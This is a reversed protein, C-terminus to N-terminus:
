LPLDMQIQLGLGLVQIWSYPETGNIYPYAPLSSVWAAHQNELLSDNANGDSASLTPRDQDRGSVPRQCTDDNTLVVGAVITNCFLLFTDTSIYM